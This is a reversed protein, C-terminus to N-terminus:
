INLIENKDAILRGSILLEEVRDFGIRNVTDAFREGQIGQSKFLLIASEIVSMVEAESTFIHSLAKGMAARKGWRGGIFVKYGVTSESVAGFPCKGICRGCHNCTEEPITIRGNDLLACKVPCNKEVACIKCGRCKNEDIQPIRQGIVGLDNLDPKVCNNPCGGVAIKFKHPLKVNGYGEFFYTHIKESLAFTDILGYQCTTGKCSVIPRVKPGTGGTKLGHQALFDILPQINEFPIHQIEVTLRSTFAVEGNGFCKAAESIANLKECNIKGNVTLVRANFHRNTKKDILFGKGKVAAIEDATPFKIESEM